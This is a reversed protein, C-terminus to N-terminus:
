RDPNTLSDRKEILSKAVVIKNRGTEKASYLARDAQEILEIRNKADRPYHAIGVSITFKIKLQNFVIESKNIHDKLRVAMEVGKKLNSGPLIIAFEEGGYRGSIGTQAILRGIFKLVEDGAQHGYTDNIKKFYDIDFLILVFEKQKQIEQELLEQFHRHNYLGTLGDRISLEKVREYLIARQWALTLQSALIQLAEVDEEGFRKRRHDELWIVGLVENDGKVPMGLFSGRPRKEGKKLVILNGDSLDEKIIYNRHRVVLGVLGEDLGFKTNEKLYTSEIVTGQNNLEDVSAISLEDCNLVTRFEKITDSVITKLELGRQLRKALEAISSLYKSEYREKEYLRLMAILFGAGKAAEDFLFKEEDTFNEGKRDIVFIGEVRDLILIPALMVSKIIVDGRYYGLEDSNQIFEKLLVPKRELIIQRYLGREVNVVADPIFLESKSFGQVLVLRDENYSFIATTHANFISHIFKVYFLLPREIGPHRDIDKISTVLNRAEFNAPGFFYDKAEYRALSKKLREERITIKGTILAIIISAIAFLLFPFPIFQKKFISSCIEIAMLLVVFLSYHKQNDKYAVISLAPFYGMFFPSKLGGTLQVLLNLSIAAILTDHLKIKKKIAYFIYYLVVIGFLVFGFKIDLTYHILGRASIIAYILIAIYLFIM